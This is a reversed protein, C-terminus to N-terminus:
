AHSAAPRAAAAIGLCVVILGSTVIPAAFFWVCCIVFLVVQVAFLAWGLGGIAAPNRRALGGLHLAVVAAFLLYASMSLGFGLYYGFFNNTSGMQQFHVDKMAQRVVAAQPSSTKSSMMGATHALSFFILLGAAIRYFLSASM